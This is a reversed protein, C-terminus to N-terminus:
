LYKADGVPDQSTLIKPGDPTVVLTHEYQCS